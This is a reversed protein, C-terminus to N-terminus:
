KLIQIGLASFIRTAESLLTLVDARGLPRNHGIARRVPHLRRFSMSLDERNGFIAKFGDRWNDKRCIVDKLDVFDAYQVVSYVPRDPSWDEERREEWRQRMGKPVRQKIWKPGAKETLTKEVVRRLHQELATFLQRHDPDFDAGHDVSAEVQLPPIPPFRFSFGAAVVVEHYADSPFAILEPNFGARVAAEDREDETDEPETEYGGGLEEGVLEVVPASYPDPTYVADSLRSIRAFGVLSKSLHDNLVWPTTVVEMRIALSAQWSSISDFVGRCPEVARALDASLLAISRAMPRIAEHLARAAAASQEALLAASQEAFLTLEKNRSLVELALAQNSSRMLEQHARFAEALKMTREINRLQSERIGWITRKRKNTVM